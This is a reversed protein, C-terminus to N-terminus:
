VYDVINGGDLYKVAAAPVDIRWDDHRIKPWSLEGTMSSLWNTEFRADYM